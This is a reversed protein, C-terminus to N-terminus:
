LEIAQSICKQDNGRARLIPSQDCSVHSHLSAGRQHTLFLILFSSQLNFTCARKLLASVFFARCPLAISLPLKTRNTQKHLM